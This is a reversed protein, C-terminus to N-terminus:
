ETADDCKFLYEKRDVVLRRVPRQGDDVNPILLQFVVIMRSLVATERTRVLILRGLNQLIQHSSEYESPM